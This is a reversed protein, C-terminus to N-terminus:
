GAGAAAEKEQQQERQAAEHQHIPIRVLTQPLQQADGERDGNSDEKPKPIGASDM